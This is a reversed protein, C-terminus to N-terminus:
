VEFRLFLWGRRTNRGTRAINSALLKKESMRGQKEKRNGREEFLRSLLLIRKAQLADIETVIIL